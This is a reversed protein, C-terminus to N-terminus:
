GLPPWCAGPGSTPSRVAQWRFRDLFEAYLAM